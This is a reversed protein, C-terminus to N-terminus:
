LSYRFFIFVLSSWMASGLRTVMDRQLSTCLGSGMGVASFIGSSVAARSLSIFLIASAVPKPRNELSWYPLLSVCLLILLCSLENQLILPIPDDCSSHIPSSNWFYLPRTTNLLSVTFSSEPFKATNVSCPAEADCVVVAFTKSTIQFNGPQELSALSGTLAYVCTSIFSAGSSCMKRFFVTWLNPDSQRLCSSWLM